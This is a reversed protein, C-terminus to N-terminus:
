QNCCKKNMKKYIVNQDINLIESLKFAIEKEYDSNNDLKGYRLVKVPENDVLLVGNRDFVRGRPSTLSYVIKEMGKVKEIYKDHELVQVQFLRMLIILFIFLLVFKLVKIRKNIRRNLM